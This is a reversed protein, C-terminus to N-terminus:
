GGPNELKTPKTKGLAKAISRNRPKVTQQNYGALFEMTLTAAHNIDEGHGDNSYRGPSVFKGFRNETENACFVAARALSVRPM